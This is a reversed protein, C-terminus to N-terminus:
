GGGPRATGTLAALANARDLKWQLELYHLSAEAALAGGVARIAYNQSFSQWENLTRNRFVVVPPRVIADLLALPTGPLAFAICWSPDGGNVAAENSQPAVNLVPAFCYDYLFGYVEHQKLETTAVVDWGPELGSGNTVKCAIEECVLQVRPAASWWWMSM